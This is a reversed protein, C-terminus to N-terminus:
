LCHILRETFIKFTLGSGEILIVIENVIQQVVTFTVLSVHEGVVYRKVLHM